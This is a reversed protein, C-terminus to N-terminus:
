TMIKALYPSFTQRNLKMIKNFEDVTILGKELLRKTLKKARVYDYEHQLEEETYQHKEKNPIGQNGIIKTVQM